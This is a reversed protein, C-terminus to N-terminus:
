EQRGSNVGGTRELHRLRFQRRRGALRRGRRRGHHDLELLRRQHVALDASAPLSGTSGFLDSLLVQYQFKKGNIQQLRQGQAIITAIEEKMATGYSYGDKM